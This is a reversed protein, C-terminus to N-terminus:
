WKKLHKWRDKFYHAAMKPKRDRTFLGKRNGGSRMPSPQTNFDAYNWPTEGVVFDREDLCANMAKYYEVQFEETFMEPATGHLGAITDAGYESLMVPKGFQAWHDLEARMAWAATELDGSLNYWGYYRNISIFDMAPITTDRTFNNQCGVLTVPRRQPDIAHVLDRLPLWYRDASEPFNETDPENGLSWIIVCPHNKDRAVLDRLVQAHYEEMGWTYPDSSPGAGIGVAPAEDIILIGERDCLAYMEESNPYHSTRFCNANLWHFLQIDTVNLCQDLGRGHFFSDEHKCPGHLHIAKGNLLFRAGDIKVERIGFTQDYVDEGFTVRATYLYPTGPWPEWLIPDPVKVEGSAGRASVVERGQADLIAIAAEGEGVAAIEYRVTGDMAPVLTVDTIYNVPTTYLRVPRTLGAYNFFDFNPLNIGKQQQRRKGEEVTPIGANDSGFFAVGGENGVPLTRHSIRNDVEILLHITDGPAALDTIDKEFPLFGGRHTCLLKGNMFVRADHTVADFRLVRRQGRTLAPIVFSRQYWALGVHARYAPDAFQDNYSAPVAISQWADTEHLRFDWLGSLDQVTRAANQQPYLM